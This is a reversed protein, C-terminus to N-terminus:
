WRRPARGAGPLLARRVPQRQHLADRGEHAQEVAETVRVDEGALVRECMSCALQPLFPHGDHRADVAPSGPEGYWREGWALATSVVPFFAQGKATLRYSGEELVGVSVFSRLRESLVAPPAGTMQQFDTFRGAGLCAAGLVASSWRSGLLAMTEPFLGAGAHGRSGTRRRNGGVPASRAFDQGEALGVSVDAMAVADGCVACSLVPRFGTGCTRHVMRPLRDAQGAVYRQEWSWISLLVPWLGTGRETLAYDGSPRRALVGADVLAALRDTLVADSIPLAQKWGGYRRVGGFAHRVVLLSWEDGLLSLARAIANPQDVDPQSVRGEYRPAM